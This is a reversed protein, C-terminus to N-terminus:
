PNFVVAPANRNEFAIKDSTRLFTTRGTRLLWQLSPLTANIELLSENMAGLAKATYIGPFPEAKENDKLEYCLFDADRDSEYANILRQLQAAKLETMDCALVLLDYDEYIEHVSLIGGLPGEQRPDIVLHEKPFTRAYDYVQAVRISIIWPLGLSELLSAARGAWTLAYNNQFPLLGKDTGMRRSEGGCLVVGLLANKTHLTKLSM